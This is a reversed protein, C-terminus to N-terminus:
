SITWYGRCSWIKFHDMTKKVVHIDNL